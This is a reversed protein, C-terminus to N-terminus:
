FACLSIDRRHSQSQTAENKPTKSSVQLQRRNREEDLVRNKERLSVMSRADQEVSEAGHKRGKAASRVDSFFRRPARLDPSKDQLGEGFHAYDGALVIASLDGDFRLRHPKTLAAFFAFPAVL